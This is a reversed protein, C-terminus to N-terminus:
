TCCLWAQKSATPLERVTLRIPRNGDADEDGVNILASAARATGIGHMPRSFDTKFGGGQGVTYGIALGIAATAAATFGLAGLAWTRPILSRIRPAGQPRQNLQPPASASVLLDHVPRLEEREEHSADDGILDDFDPTM